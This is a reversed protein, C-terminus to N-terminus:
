LGCLGPLSVHRYTKLISKEHKQGEKNVKFTDKGTKISNQDKKSPKSKAQSKGSGCRWEQASADPSCAFLAPVFGQFMSGDPVCPPFGTAGLMGTNGTRTSRTGIREEPKAEAKAAADQARKAGVVEWYNWAAQVWSQFAKALSLEQHGSARFGECDLKHGGDEAFFRSLRLIAVRCSADKCYEEALKKTVGYINRPTGYDETARLVMMASRTQEKVKLTNMLSTTSSFVVGVMGMESATNLVHRTGELNIRRFDAETYFDLNPAHLAATHIISRCGEAARQVAEEASVDGAISGPDSTPVLDLGQARLGVARLLILLAEGLYGCSGTVLVPTVKQLKQLLDDGFSGSLRAVTDAICRQKALVLKRQAQQDDGLLFYRVPIGVALGSEEAHEQQSASLGM